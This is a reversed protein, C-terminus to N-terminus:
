WIGRIGLSRAARPWRKQVTLGEPTGAQIKAKARDFLVVAKETTLHRSMYIFGDVNSPHNYIAKSWLQPKTYYSTGSFQGHLGLRKLSEGTLNALKLKAGSYRYVNYAVLRAIHIDFYGGVPVIDHLVTECIATSLKFGFYYTKYQGAPADFRNRGSNNFFPECTLHTSLRFLRSPDVTRLPLSNIAFALTPRSLGKTNQPM